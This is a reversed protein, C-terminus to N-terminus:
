NIPFPSDADVFNKAATMAQVKNLITAFAKPDTLNVTTKGLSNPVSIQTNYTRTAPFGVAMFNRAQNNHEVASAYIMPIDMADVYSLKGERMANSIIGFALNPDNINVGTAAAPKLVNRWVPSNAVKPDMAATKDLPMPAFISGVSVNDTSLKRQDGVFQNFAAEKSSKDKPDFPYKLQVEPNGEFQRRWTILQEGVQQMAPTTNTVTGSAFLQSAKYPSVNLVPKNGAMATQLGSEFMAVTNPEKNKYLILANKTSVPDMQKGTMVFYGDRIKQAIFSDEDQKESFQVKRLNFEETALRVRQAELGFQREQNVANNAQFLMGLRDRSLEAVHMVGEMNMRIGQMAANLGTVKYQYAGLVQMANSYAETATSSLANSTQFAQTTFSEAQRATEEANDKQRAAANYDAIDSNITLKGVLWGLPNTLPNASQKQRIRESADALQANASQIDDFAKGIVWGSQSPDTGLRAAIAKRAAEQRAAESVEISAKISAANSADTTAQQVQNTLDTGQNTLDVIQSADNSFSNATNLAQPILSALDIGNGAM